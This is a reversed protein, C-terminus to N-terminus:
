VQKKKRAREWEFPVGAREALARGWQGVENHGIAFGITHRTDSADAYEIRLLSSHRLGSGTVASLVMVARIQDIMLATHWNVLLRDPLLYLTMTYDREWRGYIDQRLRLVDLPGLTQAPIRVVGASDMAQIWVHSAEFGFQHVHWRDRDETILTTGEHGMWRIQDLPIALEFGASSEGAFIVANDVIGIAGPDSRAYQM